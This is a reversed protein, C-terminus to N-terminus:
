EVPCLLITHPHSNDHHFLGQCDCNPFSIMMVEPNGMFPTQEQPTAHRQELLPKEEVKMGVSFLALGSSMLDVDEM